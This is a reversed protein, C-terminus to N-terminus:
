NRTRATIGLGILLVILGALGITGISNPKNDASAHMQDNSFRVEGLILTGERKIGPANTKPDYSKNTNRGAPMSYEAFTLNQSALVERPFDGDVVTMTMSELNDLAAQTAKSTEAKLASSNERDIDPGRLGFHEGIQLLQKESEEHELSLQGSSIALLDSAFLEKAVGNKPEPNRMEPLQKRQWEPIDKEKGGIIRLPLPQTVNALLSKGSVQRMVYEEPISRIKKPEDSLIYVINRLEGENFASLRMPVVLEDTKFRFGMGQVHGDFVSGEPLKTDVDRRGAKPEAGGKQGVKTKVAVFCWGEEIYEDCVKDMGDPYKFKNEDMWKKLAAASGAELVVVEYMGVAEKKIVRVVDKKERNSYLMDSQNQAMQFGGGSNAMPMEPYLNIVVEPPDIANAIQPFINDPVKRLSPPSPFPILMGFNDVKGSFGPKIVFTEVGDKYFVYTQQLGVRTIPSGPGNYIPPVMGCPDTTSHFGCLPYGFFLLLYATTLMLAQKKM